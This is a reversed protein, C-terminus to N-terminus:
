ISVPDTSMMVTTPVLTATPDMTAAYRTYDDPNGTPGHAINMGFIGACVSLVTKKFVPGICNIDRIYPAWATADHYLPDYTGYHSKFNLTVGGILPDHGRPSFVNILFNATNLSKAYQQSRAGDTFGTGKSEKVLNVGPFLAATYGASAFSNGNNMDYITINASPIKSGGGLDMSLLGNVIAQVAYPNPAALGANLINTKIAIKSAPSLSAPFVFKWAAAVTTQGTLLLIADDVMKSVAAPVATANAGSRSVANKNFIIAVRGPWKNGPGPTMQPAASEVGFVTKALGSSMAAAAATAAGSRKLFLRRSLKM